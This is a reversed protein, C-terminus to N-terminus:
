RPSTPSIIWGDGLACRGYALKSARQRIAAAPSVRRKGYPMRVSGSHRVSKGSPCILRRLGSSRLSIRPCQESIGAHRQREHPSSVVARPLSKGSTDLGEAFFIESRRKSSAANSIGAMGARYSPRKAITVFTPHPIRHVSQRRLVPAALASPSTTHDQYGSASILNTLSVDQLRHHCCARSVLSLAFSVTLVM